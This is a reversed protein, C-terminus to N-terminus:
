AFYDTVIRRIRESATGDGYPNVAQAMAAYAAPDDLLTQVERVIVATDTGVLKATGATVGEMRETVRRMVLVPKGFAPAEEQIGGSDTLVLRCRKLLWVLEPYDVPATLFVNPLASLAAYVPERVAPNLHVPYVFRVDPNGLALKRLAACIDRFGDGFSERRHGTVLVFRATADLDPYKRALGTYPATEVVSSAIRLADIVTNGTVHVDRTVGERALNAAAAGTSALHLQAIATTMKRNIEEPFPSYRDGTRLGAEIHAVPCKNYFAALAGAFTTTTDGQVLVMDPTYADFVPQLKTLAATTIDFLTQSDRMIDLPFDATLDFFRMTQALMERHQGTTCVKVDYRDRGASRFCRIVPAVKITEPRTGFIFLLKKM